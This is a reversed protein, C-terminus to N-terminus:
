RPSFGHRNQLDAAIFIGSPNGRLILGHAAPAPDKAGPDYYPDVGIGDTNVLFVKAGSLDIIWDMIKSFLTAETDSLQSIPADTWHDITVDPDARKM